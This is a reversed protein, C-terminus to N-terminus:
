NVKSILCVPLLAWFLIYKRFLSVEESCEALASFLHHGAFWWTQSSYHLQNSSGAFSLLSLLSFWWLGEEGQGPCAQLFGGANHLISRVRGVFHKARHGGRPPSILADFGFGAPHAIAEEGLSNPRQVSTEFLYCFRSIWNTITSYTLTAYFSLYKYLASNWKRKQFTKSLSKGFTLYFLLIM